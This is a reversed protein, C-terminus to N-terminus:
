CRCHTRSTESSIDAMWQLRRDVAYYCPGMLNRKLYPYGTVIVSVAVPTPAKDDFADALKKVNPKQNGVLEIHEALQSRICLSTLPWSREQETTTSWKALSCRM